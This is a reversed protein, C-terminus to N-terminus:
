RMRATGRYRSWRKRTCDSMGACGSGDGLPSAGRGTVPVVIAFSEATSDTSTRGAAAAPTSSLERYRAAASLWSDQKACAHATCVCMISPHCELDGRMRFMGGSMEFPRNLRSHRHKQGARTFRTARSDDRVCRGRIPHPGRLNGRDYGADHLKVIPHARRTNLVRDSARQQVERLPEDRQKAGFGCGRIVAQRGPCGAERRQEDSM